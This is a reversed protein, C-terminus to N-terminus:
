SRRIFRKTRLLSPLRKRANVEHLLGLSQWFLRDGGGMVFFGLIFRKTRLLSPLRKRANVEHLCGLSSCCWCAIAM